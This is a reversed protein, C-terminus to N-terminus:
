TVYDQWKDNPKRRIWLLSAIEQFAAEASVLKGDHGAFGKPYADYWMKKVVSLMASPKSLKEVARASKVKGIGDIGPINDTADGELCQAFFARWAAVEDVDSLVDRVWNYHLGEIMDLDKDITVLIPVAEGSETLETARIGLADDAEQEDVLVAQYKSQLHERIADYHTPKNFVNRNGKYPLLTALEFRFNRKGGATLYSELPCDLRDRIYSMVTDVNQLAFAVPEPFLRHEVEPAENGDFTYNGLFQDLEKKAIFEKAGDKTHAVYKKKDAAFGCRYVLLDGDVLGVRKVKSRNEEADSVAM